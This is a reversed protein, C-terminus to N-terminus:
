DLVYAVIGVLIAIFLVTFVLGAVIYAVPHGHQFDRQRTKESQVGFAAGLVSMIVQFLTPKTPQKDDEM